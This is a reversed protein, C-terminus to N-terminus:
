HSHNHAPLVTTMSALKVFYAGQTVVTEGVELGELVEFSEGDQNGLKVKRKIFKDHSEEVYVFYHEQEEILATKPVVITQNETKGQLFVQVFSGPILEPQYDIEFYVPIYFGGGNLAKGYTLLKGNLDETRYVKPNDVFLFSASTINSLQNIYKQSVEAMLVLKDQKVVCALKEGSQVYQGEEVFVQKVFAKTACTIMSGGKEYSKMLVDFESKINLYDLKIKQFSKDSIINQKVLQEAREYDNKSKELAAKKQNYKLNINNDVMEGGSIYFVIQHENLNTGEIINPDAFHVLGSSTAVLIMEGNVSPKIEGSAKLISNFSQLEVKSTTYDHQHGEHEHEENEHHHESAEEDLHNHEEKNVHDDEHTHETPENSHKHEEHKQESNQCSMMLIYFLSVLLILFKKM